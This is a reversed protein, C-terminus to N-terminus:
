ALRCRIYSREESGTKRVTRCKSSCKAARRLESEDLGFTQKASMMLRLLGVVLEPIRGEGRLPNGM